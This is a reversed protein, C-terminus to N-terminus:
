LAFANVSFLVGFVCASGDSQWLWQSVATDVAVLECRRGNRFGMFWDSIDDGVKGLWLPHKIKQM